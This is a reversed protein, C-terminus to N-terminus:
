QSDTSKDTLALCLGRGKRLVKLIPCFVPRKDAYDAAVLAGMEAVKANIQEKTFLVQTPLRRSSPSSSFPRVVHPTSLLLSSM